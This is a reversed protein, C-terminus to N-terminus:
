NSDHVELSIIIAFNFHQDQPTKWHCMEWIMCRFRRIFANVELNHNPPRLKMNTVKKRDALLVRM